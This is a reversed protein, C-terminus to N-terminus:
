LAPADGCLSPSWLAPSPKARLHSAMLRRRTPGIGRVRELDIVSAFPRAEVLREATTPGIGRVATLASESETNVDLKLGLALRAGAPLPVVRVHCGGDRRDEAVVLHSGSIIDQDPPCRALLKGLEGIGCTYRIAGPQREVAIWDDCRRPPQGKAEPGIHPRLGLGGLAVLVILAAVTRGNRGKLM